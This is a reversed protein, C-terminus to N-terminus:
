LWRSASIASGWVTCRNWGVATIIPLGRHFRQLLYRSEPLLPVAVTGAM